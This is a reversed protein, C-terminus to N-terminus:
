KKEGRLKALNDISSLIIRTLKEWGESRFHRVDELGLVSEDPYQYNWLAADYSWVDDEVNGTNHVFVAGIPIENVYAIVRLM